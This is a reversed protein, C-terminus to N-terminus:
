MSYVFYCTSMFSLADLNNVREHFIFMKVANLIYEFTKFYKLWSIINNKSFGLKTYTVFKCIPHLISHSFLLYVSVCKLSISALMCYHKKKWFAQINLYNYSFFLHEQILVKANWINNKFIIKPLRISSTPSFTLPVFCLHEFAVLYNESKKIIKM